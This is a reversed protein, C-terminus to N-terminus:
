LFLLLVGSDNLGFDISEGKGLYHIGLAKTIEDHSAKETNTRAFLARPLM